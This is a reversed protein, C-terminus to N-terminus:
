RRRAGGLALWIREAQPSTAAGHVEALLVTGQDLGLKKAM